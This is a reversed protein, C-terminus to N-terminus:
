MDGRAERALIRQKLSAADDGGKNKEVDGRASTGAGKSKAVRAAAAEKEARTQKRVNGKKADERAHKGIIYNLLTERPAQTGNKRMEALAAEVEGAYKKAVPDSTCLLGYANKDMMDAMMLQTKVTENQLQTVKENAEFAMKEAPDMLALKEARQRQAEAPDIKPESRQRVANLEGELKAKAERLERNERAQRAIRSERRNQLQADGEPEDGEPEDGEPEDGEPEDGEPEDGEPEDGEPEDGEPEDGEPEDGGAGETDPAFCIPGYFKRLGYM